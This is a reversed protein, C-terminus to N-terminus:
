QLDLAACRIPLALSKASNTHLGSVLAFCDLLLKIM